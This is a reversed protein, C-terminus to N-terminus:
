AHNHEKSKEYNEIILQKRYERIRQRHAKSIARLILDLERKTVHDGLFKVKVGETTMTASVSRDQIVAKEEAPKKVFGQKVETM